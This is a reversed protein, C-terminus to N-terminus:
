APLTIDAPPEGAFWRQWAQELGTEFHRTYGRTDFFPESTRNRALTERIATLRARDKALAIILAEYEADSHTVLEGLGAAHLVSAAVRAAFQDGARTVMPLGSWLCDSATTHAGVPSTDLALDAHHHRALHQSRPLHGAFVLREPDIGCRKAESRLNAEAGDNSRYLWLVSGEVAGLARMWLAFRDRTIKYNANFCCFVFADDPLGHDARSDSAGSVAISDDGPQYCHPLHIVQESVHARQADPLVTPDALIYDIFGAGISGPYGLYNVQVPALRHAFLKSRSDTTYGKCDLAIDLPLLRALRVIEHDPLHAVDQFQDVATEALARYIDKRAEGYSFAHIEFRDRDHAALVGAILHMTAHDHFDASFYGIRLREPRAAPREIPKPVISGFRQRAWNQARELQRAPADELALMAFPPVPADSVGLRAIAGGHEEMADWDCVKALMHLLSARALAHGPAAKLVGRFHRIARDIEGHEQELSGLNFRATVFDPRAELARSYAARADAIRGAKKLANAHTNHIEPLEPRLACAQELQAIAEDIRGQSALVGGLNNRAQALSPDIAIARRYAAEAGAFDGGDELVLGLNYPAGAFAPSLTELSTFCEQALDTKGLMRACVGALNWAAPTGPFKRLLVQALALAAEIRGERYLATLADVESQPAVKGPAASRGGQAGITVRSISVPPEGSNGM